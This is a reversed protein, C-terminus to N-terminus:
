IEKQFGRSKRAQKEWMNEGKGIYAWNVGLKNASSLVGQRSVNKIPM